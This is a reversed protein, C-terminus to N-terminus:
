PRAAQWLVHTGALGKLSVEMPDVFGFADDDALPEYVEESVLTEGGGAEGAVRAAVAVNRGYYDGDKAVVPGRHMGIRVTIPTFRLRGKQRHLDHHIQAAARLAARPDGFVVMFGDGQHKVIHGHHRAIAARVVTDHQALIKLWARDGLRDNLATSGEIDSFVITVTGDAATVRTIESRDEFVWRNFDELSSAVLGSVGHERMIQTSEAVAKVVRTARRVVKPARRRRRQEERASELQVIRVQARRLRLAFGTLLALMCALLVTLAIELATVTAM